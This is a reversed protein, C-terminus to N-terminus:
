TSPAVTETEDGAGVTVIVPVAVGLEEPLMTDIFKRTFPVDIPVSVVAGYETEQCGVLGPVKAKATMAVSLLEDLPLVSCDPGILTVTLETCKAVTTAGVFLEPM